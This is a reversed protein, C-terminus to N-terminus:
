DAAADGVTLYFTAGQGPESEAWVRGGHKQAIRRVIALGVGTGEFEDPRHLREFVGFLRDAHAKGFGVGNDAVALGTQGDVSVPYVRITAHDRPGTFKMANSLLNGVAVRMLAPDANIAPLPLVDWEVHRQETEPGFENRLDDVLASLDTRRRVLDQRAVRALNLLDDVLTAMERSGARIREAYHLAREGLEGGYEEILLQAFGGIHRIPARLDHSVSYSFAELEANAERLEATREAVRRELEVTHRAVEERLRAQLIASALPTAVELAIERHEPSLGGVSAAGINLEGIAEGDVLLPVSLLARVGEAIVRDIMPPREVLAPLDDMQRVAGRRLMAVSSFESLPIRTASLPTDGTFGAVVQASGGRFDYLVVTCRHCPVLRRLHSLAAAGVESPSDAALVAQDLEHLARLREATRRLRDEARKRETVDSVMAVTGVFEGERGLIANTAVTGWLEGGDRRRFRVDRIPGIDDRIGSFVRQAEARAAADLFEFIPRGTLEGHAHGLMDAMRQNAYTTIGRDDVVWIGEQAADVLQKFRQESEQLARTREELRIQRSEFAAAHSVASGMMGALLELARADRDRFRQAEPAVVKLIGLVRGESKLPVAVISRMAHRRFAEADVRPDASADDTRQIEGTQVAAGSLSGRLRLVPADLGVAVRPVVDEGQILEVIAGHAGTLARSREAIVRMVTASDLGAAAVAQQVEMVTQFLEADDRLRQQGRKKETIDIETGLYGVPKGDDDRMVQWTSSVWRERGEKTFIRYEQDLPTGTRALGEREATVAARDAPHLYDIFNRAHLEATTYGTLATFAPNVFQLKLDLDYAVVSERLAGTLSRLQREHRRSELEKDRRRAVESRLLLGLALLGGAAGAAVLTLEPLVPM